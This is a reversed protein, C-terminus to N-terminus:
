LSSPAIVLISAISCINMTPKQTKKHYSRFIYSALIGNGLFPAGEQLERCKQAIPDQSRICEPAKVFFIGLDVILIQGTAEMKTM